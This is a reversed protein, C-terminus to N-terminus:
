YTTEPLTLPRKESHNPDLFQQAVSIFFFMLVICCLRFQTSDFEYYIYAGLVVVAVVVPSESM